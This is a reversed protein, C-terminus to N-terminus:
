LFLSSSGLTRPVYYAWRPRLEPIMSRLLWCALSGSSDKLTTRFCHNVVVVNQEAANLLSLYLRCSWALFGGWHWDPIGPNLGFYFLLLEKHRAVYSIIIIWERNVLALIMRFSSDLRKNIQTLITESQCNKNCCRTKARFARCSVRWSTSRPWTRTSLASTMWRTKLM